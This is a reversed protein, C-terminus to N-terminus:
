FHIKYDESYWRLTNAISKDINPDSTELKLYQSTLTVDIGCVDCLTGEDDSDSHGKPEGTTMGCICQAPKTCSAEGWVHTHEIVEMTCSYISPERSNTDKKLQGYVKIVDGVCAKQPLNVYSEGNEGKILNVYLQSTGDTIYLQGNTDSKISSVTGRVYYKQLSVNTNIAKVAWDLTVETDKEFAELSCGILMTLCIFLTLIVYIKRM